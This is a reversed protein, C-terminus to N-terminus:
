DGCFFDAIEEDTLAEIKSQLEKNFVVWDEYIQQFPGSSSKTINPINDKLTGFAASATDSNQELIVQAYLNFIRDEWVLAIKDKEPEIFPMAKLMEFLRKDIIM